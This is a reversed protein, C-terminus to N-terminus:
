RRKRWPAPRTALLAEAQDLARRVMDNDLFAGHRIEVQGIVTDVRMVGIHQWVKLLTCAEAASMGFSEQLTEAYSNLAREGRELMSRVNSRIVANDSAKM